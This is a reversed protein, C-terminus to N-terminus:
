AISFHYEAIARTQPIITFLKIVVFGLAISQALTLILSSNKPFAANKL